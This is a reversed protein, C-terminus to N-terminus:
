QWNDYSIGAEDTACHRVSDIPTCCFLGLFGIGGNPYGKNGSLEESRNHWLADITLTRPGFISELKRSLFDHSSVTANTTIHRTINRRMDYDYRRPQPECKKPTLYILHSV